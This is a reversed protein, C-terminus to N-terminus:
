KKLINRLREDAAGTSEDEEAVVEFKFRKDSYKSLKIEQDPCDYYVTITFNIDCGPDKTCPIM